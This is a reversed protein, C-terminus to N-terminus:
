GDRFEPCRRVFFTDIVRTGRGSRAKIKQKKAKWGEVPNGEVSWSCGRSGDASPVANACYWCLSLAKDQNSHKMM